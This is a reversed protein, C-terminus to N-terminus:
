LGCSKGALSPASGSGGASQRETVCDLWDLKIAAKQSGELPRNFAAM